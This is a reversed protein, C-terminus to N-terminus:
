SARRAIQARRLLRTLRRGRSRVSVVDGCMPCRTPEQPAVFSLRRFVLGCSPRTCVTWPSPGPQTEDPTLWTRDARM